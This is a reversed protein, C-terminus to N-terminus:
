ECRARPRIITQRLIRQNATPYTNIATRTRSIAILEGLNIKALDPYEEHVDFVFVPGELSPILNHLFTTKGSGPVGTLIMPVTNEM